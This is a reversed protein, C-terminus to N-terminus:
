HVQTVEGGHLESHKNSKQSFLLFSVIIYRSIGEINLLLSTGNFLMMDDVMRLFINSIEIHKFIINIIAGKM